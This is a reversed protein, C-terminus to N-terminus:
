NLGVQISYQTLMYCTMFFEQLSITVPSPRASFGAAGATPVYNIALLSIGNNSQNYDIHTVGQSTISLQFNSIPFATNISAQVSPFNVLLNNNFYNMYQIYLLVDSKVLNFASCEAFTITNSGFDVQDVQSPNNFTLSATTAVSNTTLIQELAM